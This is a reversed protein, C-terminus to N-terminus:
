PEGPRGRAMREVYQSRPLNGTIGNSSELCANVHRVNVTTGVAFPEFEGGVFGGVQSVEVVPAHWSEAAARFHRGVGGESNGSEGGGGAENGSPLEGQGSGEEGEGVGM